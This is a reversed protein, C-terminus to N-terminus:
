KKIQNKKEYKKFMRALIESIIAGTGGYIMLFQPTTLNFRITGEWLGGFVFAGICILQVLRIIVYKSIKIEEEVM